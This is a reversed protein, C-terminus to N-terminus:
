LCRMYLNARYQSFRGPGPAVRFKGVLAERSMLRLDLVRLLDDEYMMRINRLASMTAARIRPDPHFQGYELSNISEKAGIVGLSYTAPIRVRIDEDWIGTQLEDGGILANVAEQMLDEHHYRRGLLQAAFIRAYVVCDPSLSSIGARCIISLETKSCSSYDWVLKLLKLANASIHPDLDDRRSYQQVIGTIMEVAVNLDDFPLIKCIYIALLDSLEQRINGPSIPFKELMVKVALWKNQPALAQSSQITDYLDPDAEQIRRMKEEIYAWLMDNSSSGRLLDMMYPLRIVSM